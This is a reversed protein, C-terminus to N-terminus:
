AALLHIDAPPARVSPPPGSFLQRIADSWGMVVTVIHLPSSLAISQVAPVVQQSNRLTTASDAIVDRPASAKFFPCKEM